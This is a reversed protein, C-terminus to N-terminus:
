QEAVKSRHDDYQNIGWALAYCCWLYHFTYRNMSGRYITSIRAKSM